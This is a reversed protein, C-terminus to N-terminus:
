IKLGGRFIVTKQALFRIEVKRHSTAASILNRQRIQRGHRCTCRIIFAPLLLTNGMLMVTYALFLHRKVHKPLKLHSQKKDSVQLADYCVHPGQPSIM